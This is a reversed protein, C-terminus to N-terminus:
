KGDDGHATFALRADPDAAVFADRVEGGVEFRQPGIAPGLWALLNAADVQM